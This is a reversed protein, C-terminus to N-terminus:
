FNMAKKAEGLFITTWGGLLLACMGFFRQDTLSVLHLTELGWLAGAIVTLVAFTASMSRFYAFRPRLMPTGGEAPVLATEVDVTGSSPNFPFITPLHIARVRVQSTESWPDNGVITALFMVRFRDKRKRVPNPTRGEYAPLVGEWEQPAVAVM